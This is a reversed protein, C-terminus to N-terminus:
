EARRYRLEFDLEWNTGDDSREWRGDITHGDESFAGTFRQHFPLPTFDPANRLLTWNGGEFTMAYLRVVGRSDFYHMTFAEGDHDLAIISLGEPAGEVPIESRHVLFQADLAWEFTARGSVGPALSAELTWDGVLPELREIASRRPPQM